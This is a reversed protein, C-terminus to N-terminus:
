GLGLHINEYHAPFSQTESVVTSNSSQYSTYLVSSFASLM